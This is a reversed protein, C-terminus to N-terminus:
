GLAWFTTAAHHTAYGIGTHRLDAEPVMAAIPGHLWHATANTGQWPSTGEARGVAMLAATSALSGFTGSIITRATLSPMM